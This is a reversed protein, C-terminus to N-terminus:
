ADLLVQEQWEGTKHVKQMERGATTWCHVEDVRLFQQKCEHEMAYEAAEVSSSKFDHHLLLGQQNKPHISVKRPNM